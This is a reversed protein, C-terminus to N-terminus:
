SSLEVATPDFTWQDFPSEVAAYGLEGLVILGEAVLADIIRVGCPRNAAESLFGSLLLLEIPSTIAPVSVM